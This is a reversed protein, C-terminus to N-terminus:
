LDQRLHYWLFPYKTDHITEQLAKCRQSNASGLYKLFISVAQPDNALVSKMLLSEDPHRVILDRVM